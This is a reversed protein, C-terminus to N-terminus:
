PAPAPRLLSKLSNFVGALRGLEYVAPHDYSNPLGHYQKLLEVHSCAVAMAAFFRLGNLGPFWGGRADKM